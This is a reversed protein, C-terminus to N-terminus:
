HFTSLATLTEDITARVAELQQAVDDLSQAEIEISRALRSLRTAGLNAAMGKLRHAVRKAKALDAGGVASEMETLCLTCQSPVQSLIAEVDEKDLDACWDAMAKDDILPLSIDPGAGYSM